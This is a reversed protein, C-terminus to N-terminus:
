GAQAASCRKLAPVIPTLDRKRRSLRPDSISPWRCSIRSQDSSRGPRRAPHPADADNISDLGHSISTLCVHGMPGTKALCPSSPQRSTPAAHSFLSELCHKADGGNVGTRILAEPELIIPSELNTAIRCSSAM